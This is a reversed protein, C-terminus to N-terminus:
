IFAERIIGESERYRMSFSEIFDGRLGPNKDVLLKGNLVKQLYLLNDAENIVQIDFQDPPIGTKTSLVIKLDSLLDLFDEKNSIYVGIDIDRYYKECRASGYLYAFVVRSDKELVERIVSHITKM